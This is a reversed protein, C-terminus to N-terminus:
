KAALAKAQKAMQDRFRSEAWAGAQGNMTVVLRGLSTDPVTAVIIQDESISESPECAAVLVYARGTDSAPRTPPFAVAKEKPIGLQDISTPNKGQLGRYERYAKAIIAMDRLAANREESQKAYMASAGTFANIAYSVSPTSQFIGSDPTVTFSAAIGATDKIAAYAPAFDNQLGFISKLGLYMYATSNAKLGKLSGTTALSPYQGQSLMVVKRVNTEQGFALWEGTLVLVNKDLERNNMAFTFFVSEGEERVTVGSEGGHRKARLEILKTIADRTIARDTVRIMVLIGEGRDPKMRGNEDPLMAFVLGSKHLALTEEIKLGTERQFQAIGEVLFPAMPNKKTDLLLPAAKKYLTGLDGHWTFAFATDAPLMGLLEPSGQESAFIDFLPIPASATLSARSWADDEVWGLTALQFVGLNELGKGIMSGFMGSGPGGGGEGTMGGRRMRGLMNFVGEDRLIKLVADLRVYFCTAGGDSKIANQFAPQQSLCGQVVSGYTKMTERLRSSSSAIILQDGRIGINMSFNEMGVETESDDVKTGLQEEIVKGSAIKYIREAQPTTLIFVFDFIPSGDTMEFKIVAGELTQISKVMTSVSGTEFGLMQDAFSLGEDMQDLVASTDMPTSWLMTNSAFKQLGGIPDNQRMYLMTDAPLSQALSQAAVDTVFFSLALFLSAIVRMTAGLALVNGM